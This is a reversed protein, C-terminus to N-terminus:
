LAESAEKAALEKRRDRYLIIFRGFYIIMTIFLMGVMIRAAPKRDFILFDAVVLTGLIIGTFGAFKLFSRSWAPTNVAVDAPDVMKPTQNGLVILILGYTIGYGKAVLEKGEDVTVWELAQILEGIMFPILLCGVLCLMSAMSYYLMNEQSMKVSDASAKPGNKDYLKKSLSRIMAHHPYRLLLYLVPLGVIVGLGWYLQDPVTAILVIALIYNAAWVAKTIGYRNKTDSM